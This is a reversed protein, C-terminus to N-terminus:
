REIPRRPDHKPVCCTTLAHDTRLSPTPGPRGADVDPRTTPVYTLLLGLHHRTTVLQPHHFYCRM